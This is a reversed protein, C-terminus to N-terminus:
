YNYSKDIQIRSTLIFQKRFLGNNMVEGWAAHTEVVHRKESFYADTIKVFYKTHFNNLYIWKGHYMVIYRKGLIVLLMIAGTGVLM